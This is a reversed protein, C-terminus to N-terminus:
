LLREELFTKLQFCEVFVFMLDGASYVTCLYKFTYELILMYEKRDAFASIHFFLCSREIQSLIHPSLLMEFNDSSDEDRNQKRMKYMKRQIIKDM